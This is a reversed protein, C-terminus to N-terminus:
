KKHKSLFTDVDKIFALTGKEIQNTLADLDRFDPTGNLTFEIISDSAKPDSVLPYKNWNNENFLKWYKAQVDRNYGALLVKFTFTEHIFLIVIKLKQRKLTKPFFYFYTYDMPGYHISSSLFYDPYKNKLYLRLQTFYDMLGKYVTKITGKELQKRYEDINLHFPQV